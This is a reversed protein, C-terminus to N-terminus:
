KRGDSSSSKEGSSTAIQVQHQASNAPDEKLEVLVGKVRAPPLPTVDKTTLSPVGFDKPKRPVLSVIAKLLENGYPPGVRLQFEADPHPVHIQQNAAIKNDKQIKNPFLMSWNGDASRYILYLYGAKESTVTVRMLEGQGDPGAPPGRYIRDAHDVEVRVAFPQKISPPDLGDAGEPSREVPQTAPTEVPTVGREEEIMEVPREAPSEAPAAEPDEEVMEVPSEEAVDQAGEEIMEVPREAPSEAPTAEPDQEVTEVPSEEAVDQAGEEIIEVPREAPSAAPAEEPANEPTEGLTRLPLEDSAVESPQEAPISDSHDGRGSEHEPRDGPRTKIKVVAEAWNNPEDEHEVFVCKVFSPPLPTADADTLSPVGFDEPPRPVRSVVARLQEEGYPPGVRLQFKANPRPVQIEENASIRNDRQTRNPFLMSLNGDASTYILYLYGEEKSTVTVRMMEGRGDPGAPPGRYIGDSHDVTATVPPPPPPPPPPLPSPDPGGGLYNVGVALVLVAAAAAVLKWFWPFPQTGPAPPIRQEDSQRRSEWGAALARLDSGFTFPELAAAVQGPTAFREAPNKALMRNLIPILEKPVNPRMTEIPPVPEHLHANMKDAVSQFRPEDFPARGSLLRYLTCGLGYVDARTDASQSDTVQEPAMYDATGVAFGAGTVDEVDPQRTRFCALGLDLVKVQGDRTLMLNSPKIDRHVLGQEHVYQLGKAAQCVVECADAIPLPGQSRVLESLNKGEIFEMVLVLRGEIKSAHDAHVIHPHELQGIAKMERQFRAVAREEALARGPLVKVAVKRGLMTHAAKYVVGMHGGIRETIRYDGLQQPLSLEDDAISEEGGQSTTPSALGIDKARSMMQRCEPESSYDDSPEWDRLLDIMEDSSSELEDAIVQCQHCGTIHGNLAEAESEDAHGLMLAQIRDRPPCDSRTM